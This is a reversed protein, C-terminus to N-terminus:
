KEGKRDQRSAKAISRNKYLTLQKYIKIQEQCQQILQEYVRAQGIYGDTHKPNLQISQSYASFADAFRGQQFLIDGKHIHLFPNDPEQQLMEECLTLDEKVISKNYEISNEKQHERFTEILERIEQVVTTFVTDRKTRSSIAQGGRPLMQLNSIPTNKYDIPRLLIPVVHCSGAERKKLAKHMESICYDSSLFDPSLLLLIIDANELHGDITKAWETGPLIKQSYWTTIKGVQILPSLHKEITDLFKKDQHASSYFINIPQSSAENM